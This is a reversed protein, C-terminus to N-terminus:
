LARIAPWAMHGTMRIRRLRKERQCAMEVEQSAWRNEEEDMLVARDDWYENAFVKRCDGGFAEIIEPLNENVADLHIDHEKCFSVAKELPEGVRNTWLIVKTGNAQEEKLRNINKWIPEGVEPWKNVALCGDFDVAIIKPPTAATANEPEKTEVANANMENM